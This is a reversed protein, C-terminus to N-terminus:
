VKLVTATSTSLAANKLTVEKASSAVYNVADGCARVITTSKAYLDTSTHAAGIVNVSSGAEYLTGGGDLEIADVAKGRTTATNSSSAWYFMAHQKYKGYTGNTNTLYYYLTKKEGQKTVSGGGEYLTGTSHAKGLIQVANGAEYLTGDYEIGKVADGQITYFDGGVYIQKKAADVGSTLLKSSQYDTYLTPLSDYGDIATTGTDKSM